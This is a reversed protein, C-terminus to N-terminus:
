ISGDTADRIFDVELLLSKIEYPMIELQISDCSQVESIPREMLDCEQWGQIALDSTIEVKARKGAFEHIRLLIHDGDEAKKVADVMVHDVSIRFMSFNMMTPKGYMSPCPNNLSWAEQVVRGEFWDGCHPLLSYTFHHEGRDAEPDPYNASKILSLRMVHDKIDYGYKSDNLLAIGYGKESLDAWQHAVTEFKALDWSTNWHTPRKVNGFQIDYTAETALVEVPFAVKLLQEREQWDVKTVFDIRRSNAYVMMDQEITSDGYTWIFQVRAHVPGVEQISVTHLNGITRMKEQYFLDIDWADYQLPKDEFVQLVNGREGAKLVERGAMLDYVSTLHGDANWRLEYYPTTIGDPHWQFAEEAKMEGAEFAITCFGMTPIDKVLILWRGENRQALLPSGNSDKWVGSELGPQIPVAVVDTREWPSSNFVTVTDHGDGVLIRAISAEWADAAIAEAARYEERCDDYVERISSGPIIDHFQNRMIIKWGEYLRQQPYSSYGEFIAAISSMWESERYALELKRNMRKVFAQSTYTGRHLELYLEGNWTHVYRDTEALNKHLRSFYEDVRGTEVRPLGPMQHLRRRMELMERNVGGGGDGYGYSLLLERNIEKDQYNDWTGKVTKALIDGNYTYYKSDYLVEPTTLLHTLVESGDLGRWIFTDHPMRNYRNWSIKSTVFSAIGSKKLIQPLSWCYGFVDPLWLYTCEVGFEQRLFRTGYLIHRVLSEGSSLNCDAELWMAGGAEWRGEAIRIKIQEYLEPYDEKLYEYLQPQSQLFIYDPFQEMLRLVTSFSRATKERTHKLQWLWAVDIHTHGICTVTVPHDNNLQGLAFQLQLAAKRISSYFADSAPKSWDLVLFARDLITELEIGEPSGDPLIELTDLIAKSTYYLDDTDKDLWAIEAQKLQHEQEKREGGGELGSWLRFQLHLRQGSCDKALVVERHNVDVGQYIADNIFLLAEFGSNNGDGSKGLDFLGVITRGEWERPIDVAASLWAYRDRGKWRDGIVMIEGNRNMSSPRAGIQNSPDYAFTFHPIEFKDRYRYELLQNMRAALKQRTAVM